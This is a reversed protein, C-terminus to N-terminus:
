EIPLHPGIRRRARALRAVGIALLVCFALQLRATDALAQNLAAGDTRQRVARIPPIALPLSLLALNIWCPLDFALCLIPVSLIAGLVLVLYLARTRERGLRM